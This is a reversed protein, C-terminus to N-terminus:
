AVFGHETRDPTEIDVCFSQDKESVVALKEVFQGMWTVM